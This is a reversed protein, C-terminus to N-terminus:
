KSKRTLVVFHVVSQELQIPFTYHAKERHIIYAKLHFFFSILTYGHGILPINQTHTHKHAEEILM